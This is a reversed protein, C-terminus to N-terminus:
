KSESSLLEELYNCINRENKIVTDLHVGNTNINDEILEFQSFINRKLVNECQTRNQERCWFLYKILTIPCDNECKKLIEDIASEKNLQEKRKDTIGFISKSIWSM